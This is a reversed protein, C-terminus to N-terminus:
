EPTRTRPATELPTEAAAFRCAPLVVGSPGSDRAGLRRASRARFPSACRDHCVGQCAGANGTPQPGSLVTLVIITGPPHVHSGGGPGLRAAGVVQLRDRDDRGVRVDRRGEAEVRLPQWGVQTVARRAELLVLLALLDHDLP